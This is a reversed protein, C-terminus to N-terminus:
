SRQQTSTNQGHATRELLVLLREVSHRVTWAKAVRKRANVGLQRALDPEDILRLVHTAFEKHGGGSLLGTEEHVVSERVGGEAVAVVPLECSAAELPALGFPELRPAYAMAYANNLERVLESDSVGSQIRLNVAVSRAHAQTAEIAARDNTNTVWLLPPRREPPLIAFAEIIFPINKLGRASGVTIFTDTRRAGYSSFKNTDVGLYCVESNLGYARLVSERSYLSNVVLAGYAAANSVEEGIRRCRQRTEYVWRAGKAWGSPTLLTEWRRRQAAFPPSPAAEYLLRAPEALYLVSPTTLYRGLPPAHAYAATNALVVDFRSSNITEAVAACHKDLAKLRLDCDGLAQSLAATGRVRYGQIQISPGFNVNGFKRLPLFDEDAEPPCWIEVEHGLEVLGSIHDHLARKGGGSPLAHWIAIRM